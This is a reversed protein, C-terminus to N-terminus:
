ARNEKLRISMLELLRDTLLEEIRYIVDDDPPTDFCQVPKGAVRELAEIFKEEADWYSGGSFVPYFELEHWQARVDPNPESREFIDVMGVRRVRRHLRAVREADSAKALSGILGLIGFGIMAWGWDSSGAIVAIGIMGLFASTVAVVGLAAAKRWNRGSRRESEAIDTDSLNRSGVRRFCFIWREVEDEGSPIQGM